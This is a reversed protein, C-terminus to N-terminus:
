SLSKVAECIQELAQRIVARPSGLNMRFCCQGGDGFMTGKNMWVKAKQIMFADLADSDMGLDSFDLWLLYTGDPEMMKVQPLNEKLFSRVLKVNEDLYVLLEDLWPEGHAYAARCAELAIVNSAEMSARDLEERFAKRINENPIFINSLGLGAINFTKSPATCIISNQAMEENVSAWETFTRGPLIFDHHIEDAVVLVKHRLCIEAIKGLEEQSWIRGGPNHPTCLVMMKVQEQIIQQEMEDFDMHFRSDDGVTLCHKVAKRRNADLVNRFPHYVPQMIMVGDGEQTFARVAAAIACVVGPTRVMWEEKVDWGHRKRMWESVAEFYDEHTDAYGFVGFRGAEEIVQCVEAPSRFDMDAVWLPIVDEPMGYEKKFGHKVSSTYTRDIYEDFNYTSM